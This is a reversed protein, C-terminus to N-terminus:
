GRKQSKKKYTEEQLNRRILKKKYTEEKNKDLYFHFPYGLSDPFWSKLIFTIQVLPPTNKSRRLDAM